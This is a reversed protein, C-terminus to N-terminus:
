LDVKGDRKVSVIQGAVRNVLVQLTITRSPQDGAHYKLNVKFYYYLGTKKTLAIDVGDMSYQDGPKPTTEQDSSTTGADGFQRFGKPSSYNVVDNFQQVVSGDRFCRYLTKQDQANLNNLNLNRGPLSKTSSMVSFALKIGDTIHREAKKVPVSQINYRRPKAGNPTHYKNEVKAINIAQKSRHPQHQSRYASFLNYGFFFLPVLLIVVLFSILGLLLRKRKKLQRFKRFFKILNM